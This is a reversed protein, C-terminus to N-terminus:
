GDLESWFALKHDAAYDVPGVAGPELSQTHPVPAAPDFREWRPLGAGNPDGTRAFNTWYAIMQDALGQQAPDFSARKETFM